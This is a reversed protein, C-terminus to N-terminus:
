HAHFYIGVDFMSHDWDSHHDRCWQRDADMRNVDNNVQRSGNGHRAADRDIRDKDAQLRARCDSTYDRDARAPASVAFLLGGALATTLAIRTWAKTTKM